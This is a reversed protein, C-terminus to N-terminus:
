DRKELSTNETKSEAIKIFLCLFVTFITFGKQGYLPEEILMLLSMILFFQYLLYSKSFFAYNAISILLVILVVFGLVGFQVMNGIFQNHTYWINEGDFPIINNMLLAQQKLAIIQEDFGSGWILHHKVYNLALTLYYIRTKDFVFNTLKEHFNIVLLILIFVSFVSALKWNKSRRKLIYISTTSLIFFIQVLGIRSQMLAVMAILLVIYIGLEFKNVTQFQDSSFYLYFGSILGMFLVLSVYSPHFYYAWSTVFYYAGYVTGNSLTTQETWGRLDAVSFNAKGSFWDIIGYELYQFNYLWYVVCLVMYLIMLKFFIYLLQHFSQNSINIVSFALPILIFTLSKDPIRFGKSTGITGLIMLLAYLFLGYYVSNLKLSKKEVFFYIISLLIFIFSGYISLRLKFITSVMLILLSVYLLITIKSRNPINLKINKFEYFFLVVMNLVFFLGLFYRVYLEHYPTILGLEFLIQITTISLLVILLIYKQFLNNLSFVGSLWHKTM